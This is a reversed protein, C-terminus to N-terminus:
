EFNEKIWKLTTGEALSEVISYKDRFKLEHKLISLLEKETFVKDYNEMMMDVLKDSKGDVELGLTQFLKNVRPALTTEKFDLKYDELTKTTTTM